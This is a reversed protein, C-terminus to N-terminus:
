SQCCGKEEPVMRQDFGGGMPEMAELAVVAEGEVTEIAAVLGEWKGAARNYRSPFFAGRSVTQIYTHARLIM